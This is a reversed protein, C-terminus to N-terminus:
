EMTLNWHNELYSRSNRLASALYVTAILQSLSCMGMSFSILLIWRFFHCCLVINMMRETRNKSQKAQHDDILIEKEKTSFCVISNKENNM